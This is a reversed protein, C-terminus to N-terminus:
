AGAYKSYFVLIAFRCEFWWQFCRTVRLAQRAADHVKSTSNANNATNPAVPQAFMRGDGVADGDGADDEDGGGSLAMLAVALNRSRVTSGALEIKSAVRASSVPAPSCALTMLVSLRGTGPKDTTM